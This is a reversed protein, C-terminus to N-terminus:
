FSIQREGTRRVARIICDMRGQVAFGLHDRIFRRHEGLRGDEESDLFGGEEDEGDEGVLMEVVAPREEGDEEESGVEEHESVQGVNAKSCCSVVEDM